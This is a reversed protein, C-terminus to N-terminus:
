KSNSVIIALVVIIGVVWLIWSYDTSQTEMGALEEKCSAITSRTKQMAENIKKEVALLLSEQTRAIDFASVPIRLYEIRAPGEKLMFEVSINQPAGSPTPFAVAAVFSAGTPVDIDLNGDIARIAVGDAVLFVKNNGPNTKNLLKTARGSHADTVRFAMLVFWRTVAISILEYDRGKETILGDGYSDTPLKVRFSWTVQGTNDGFQRSTWTGDKPNYELQGYSIPRARLKQELESVRGLERRIESEMRDSDKELKDQARHVIRARKERARDAARSAAILSRTVGRWGM